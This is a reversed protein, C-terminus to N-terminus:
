GGNAALEEFAKLEGVSRSRSRFAAVEAPPATEIFRNIQRVRGKLHAAEERLEELTEGYTGNLIEAGREPGIKELLYVQEQTSDWKETVSKSALNWSEALAVAGHALSDLDESSPDSSLRGGVEHILDFLFGALNFDNLYGIAFRTQREDLGRGFEARWSHIQRM